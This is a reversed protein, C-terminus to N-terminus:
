PSINSAVEEILERLGRLVGLIERQQHGGNEFQGDREQLTPQLLRSSEVAEQLDIRPKTAKDGLQFVLMADLPDGPGISVGM